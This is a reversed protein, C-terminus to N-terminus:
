DVPPGVTDTAPLQRVRPSRGDKQRHWLHVATFGILLVRTSRRPLNQRVAPPGGDAHKNPHCDLKAKIYICRLNM